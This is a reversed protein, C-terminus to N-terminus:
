RAGGRFERRLREIAARVLKAAEAGDALGVDRAIEDHSDGQIWQALARRQPATLAGDAYALLERATNILTVPPREGPMLSSAPLPELGVWAGNASPDVERRRDVYEGHGRLYDIGIRKTVIRLWTMFRLSPNDRRAALYMGLRRHGDARLRAMVEVAINRRDEDRDRLGLFEPRALLQALRPQLRNWLAQWAVDDGTAAPAILADLDDDPASPSVMVPVAFFASAHVDDGSPRRPRDTM